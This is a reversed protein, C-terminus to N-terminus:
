WTPAPSRRRGRGHRHGPGRRDHLAVGAAVLRGRRGDLERDDRFADVDEVKSPNLVVALNRDSPYPTAAADPLLEAHSRPLPSYVALGLAVMGMGLLFGGVVDSPFHRGLLVRDLCVVVVM